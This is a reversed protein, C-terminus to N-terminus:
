TNLFGCSDQEQKRLLHLWDNWGTLDSGYSLDCDLARPLQIWFLVSGLWVTPSKSVSKKVIANMIMTHSHVLHLLACTCIHYSCLLRRFVLASRGTWGIDDITSIWVVHRVCRRVSYIFRQILATESTHSHRHTLQTHKKWGGFTFHNKSTCMQQWCVNSWERLENRSALDNALKHSKM